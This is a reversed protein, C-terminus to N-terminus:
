SPGVEVAALGAVLLAVTGDYTGGGLAMLGPGDGQHILEYVHAMTGDDPVRPGAPIGPGGPPPEREVLQDVLLEVVATPPEAALRLLARVVDHDSGRRMATVAEDVRASLASAM